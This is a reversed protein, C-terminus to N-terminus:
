SSVSEVLRGCACGSVLSLGAPSLLLLRSGLLPGFASFKKGLVAEAYFNGNKLFADRGLEPEIEILVSLRQGRRACMDGDSKRTEARWCLYKVELGFGVIKEAILYHFFRVREIHRNGSIALAFSKAPTVALDLCAYLHRIFHQLTDTHFYTSGSRSRDSGRELQRTFDYEVFM